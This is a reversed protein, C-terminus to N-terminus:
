LVYYLMTYSYLTYGEFKLCWGTGRKATDEMSPARAEHLQM